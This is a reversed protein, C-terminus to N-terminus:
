NKKSSLCIGNITVDKGAQIYNWATERMEKANKANPADFFEDLIEVAEEETIETSDHLFNLDKGGPGELSSVQQKFYIRSM